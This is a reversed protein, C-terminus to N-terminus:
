VLATENWLKIVRQDREYALISLSAVSLYFYKGAEVSLGLWRAALVRSFHAHSFILINGVEHLLPKLFRDAREAVDDPSEGGPAGDDFINWGAHRDWIQSSTIGEYEGYNWEMANPEILKRHGFGARQCTEQARLMPSVIVKSFPIGRIKKGLMTAQNQGNETLPIDSFSTHRGTLTWETEGHRCLFIQLRDSKTTDEVMIDATTIDMITAMTIAMTAIIDEIGDITHMSAALGLAM